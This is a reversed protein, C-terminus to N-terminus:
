ASIKIKLRYGDETTYPYFPEDKISFYQKLKKSLLHKQSKVNLKANRDSWDIQGNNNAIGELFIWQLNPLRKKRNEFGMEKYTIKHTKGRIKIQATHGDLFKMSIEEWKLGEPLNIAVLAVNSKFNLKYISHAEQKFQDFEEVNVYLKFSNERSAPAIRDLPYAINKSELFKIAEIRSNIFDHDNHISAPYQEFPNRTEVEITIRNDPAIEMKEAIDMLMSLIKELNFRSLNKLEQKKAKQHAKYWDRFEPKIQLIFSLTLESYHRQERNQNYKEELVSILSRNQLSDLLRKFSDIDIHELRNKHNLFLEIIPNDPEREHLRIIESILIDFTETNM